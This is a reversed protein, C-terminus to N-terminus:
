SEKAEFGLHRKKQNLVCEFLAGDVMLFLLSSGDYSWRLKGHTFTLRSTDVNCFALMESVVLIPEVKESMLDWINFVLGCANTTALFGCQVDVSSINFSSTYGRRIYDEFSEDQYERWLAFTSGTWKFVLIKGSNSTLVLFGDKMVMRVRRRDDGWSPHWLKESCEFRALEVPAEFDKCLLLTGCKTIIAIVNFSSELQADSLQMGMPMEFCSIEKLEEKSEFSLADNTIQL